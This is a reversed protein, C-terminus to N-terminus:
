AAIPERSHLTGDALALVADAARMLAASHTAVVVTRGRTAEHLAAIVQAFLGALRMNLPILLTAALLILGAPWQVVATALFVTAMSAPASLRQPLVQAHYDAVEDALEVAATAATAADPEAQRLRGPLLADVLQQRISSGISRRGAAQFHAASWVAAGALLGNALLLALQLATPHARHALASQALWALAAWVGVTFLTELAQAAGALRLPMRGPAAADRLWTRTADPETM